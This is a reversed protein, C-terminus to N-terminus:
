NSNVYVRKLVGQMSTPLFRALTDREPLEFEDEGRVLKPPRSNLRSCDITFSLIYADRLTVAVVPPRQPTIIVRMREISMCENAYLTISAARKKGLMQVSFAKIAEFSSFEIANMFACLGCSANLLELVPIIETVSLNLDRSAFAAGKELADFLGIAGGVLRLSSRNIGPSARSLKDRFTSLQSRSVDRGGFAARLKGSVFDFLEGESQPLRDLGDLLSLPVAALRAGDGSHLTKGAHRGGAVRAAGDALPPERGITRHAGAVRANGDALPRERGVARQVADRHAGNGGAAVPLGLAVLVHSRIADNHYVSLVQEAVARRDRHPVSEFLARLDGDRTAYARERPTGGRIRTFAHSIIERAERVVRRAGANSPVRRGQQRQQGPHM